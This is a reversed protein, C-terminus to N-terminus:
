GLQGESRAIWAAGVLNGITNVTTRCMDLPRDVAAVLAIGAAARPGLGIANLVILTTVLSSGPVGAGAFAAITAMLIITIMMSSSIPVGYLQALFIAAVAKYAAAGNKNLSAGAPLVFSVVDNPIGLRERAAAMSVPLTANSSATSFALLLADAVSRVFARVGLRAGLRLAPLLVLAVHLALAVIVVLSFTLLQDLMTLGSRAVTAAILIAVAPPALRMLWGIVVMSLENVGQFFRVVADRGDSQIVTAAAAFICVAIILPLLDSGGQAASAFPNQPIMNILTQSLSPSSAAQAVTNAGVLENAVRNVLADRDADPLGAGVHTARAVALGVIAAALTTGLFYLLTKGGVRGLTRVNGLSAVGVFVSAIVLPVVVMTILRIFATGVPEIGVLSRQLWELGALRSAFGAAIGLAFGILIKRELKM